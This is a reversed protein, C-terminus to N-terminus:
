RGAELWGAVPAYYWPKLGKGRDVEVLYRDHQSRNSGAKMQWRRVGIPLAPHYPIGYRLGHSEDRPIFALVVGRKTVGSSWWEVVTGKKLRAM